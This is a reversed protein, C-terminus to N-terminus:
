SEAKLDVWKRAVEKGDIKMVFTYRGPSLGGDLIYSLNGRLNERPIVCGDRKIIRENSDRIQVEVFLDEHSPQLSCQVIAKDGQRFERRRDLLVDGLMESGVEFAFMKDIPEVVNTEHLLTALRQPDIPELPRRGEPRREGYVDRHYEFEVNAVAVVAVLVGFATASHVLSPRRWNSRGLAVPIESVRDIWSFRRGLRRMRAGLWQIDEEGFLALYLVVYLLPFVILGLLLLTGLHFMYGFTICIKRGWGGWCVFPFVIEWIIVVYASVVLWAPYLSLQEGMPKPMNLNTLMWYAMQDGSFYGPTHMKTVAAGVYAVGLLIVMLKRPWVASKPGDALGPWPSRRGKLWADVSWVSGCGSFTLLLLAHSAIVTYKTLTTIGDLLSFYTYLFTTIALSVRTMWGLGTTVLTFVLIGYLGVAVTASPVPFLNLHGFNNWMPAPAGDTSYLVRVYPWRLLVGVLLVMPLTIRMIALTYPVEEAFLFEKIRSRLTHPAHSTMDFELSGLPEGGPNKVESLRSTARIGSPFWSM